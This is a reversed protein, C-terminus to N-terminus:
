KKKATRRSIPQKTRAEKTVEKTPETTVEKTAEKTPETTVMPPFLVDPETGFHEALVQKTLADPQCKGTMWLRVTLEKRRTVAMVEQVLAQHPSPLERAERYMTTLSKNM